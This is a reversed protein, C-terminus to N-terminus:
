QGANLLNVQNQLSQVAIILVDIQAQLKINNDSVTTSLEQGDNELKCIRGNIDGLTCGADIARYNEFCKVLHDAEFRGDNFVLPCWNNGFASAVFKVSNIFNEDIANLHNNFFNYNNLKSLDGFSKASLVNLKNNTMSLSKLYKVSSFANEPIEEIENFDLRLEELKVLSQFWEAKLVKFSNKQLSLFKLKKGLNLFVNNPMTALEADDISLRELASNEKFANRDIRKVMTYMVELITLNKCQSFSYDDIREIGSSEFRARQINNFKECIIGPINTTVSRHLSVAKVDSDTKGDMHDGSIGTFNNFGNPNQIILECNYGTTDEFYRCSLEENQCFILQSNLSFILAVFLIKFSMEATSILASHLLISSVPHIHFVQKLLREVAAVIAKFQIELINQKELYKQMEYIVPQMRMNEDKLEAIQQYLYKYNDDVDVKNQELSCVRQDLNGIPCAPVLYKFNEFCTKLYRRMTMKLPDNHDSIMLETSCVNNDMMMYVIGTDNIFKEDIANIKNKSFIVNQLTPLPGFSNSNIVTLRNDSFYIKWINKLPTFINKPLVEFKNGSIRLEVLNELTEFWDHKLDTLSNYAFDLTKLIRLPRFINRPLDTLRNASIDLSDLKQQNIFLNEPLSSILNRSITLYTLEPNELFAKEPVTSINNAYFVFTTIIKCNAIANEEFNTVGNGHMYLTKANKFKDCIVSPINPTNSNFVFNVYNVDNDTMGTTHNGSISTFNNLGNPNIVKLDCVYGRGTQQSYKCELLENQGFIVQLNVLFLVFKLGMKVM